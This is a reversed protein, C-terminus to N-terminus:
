QNHTVLQSQSISQPTIDYVKNGYQDFVMIECPKKCNFVNNYGRVTIDGKGTLSVSSFNGNIVISCDETDCYAFDGSGTMSVSESGNVAYVSNDKGYTYIISNDAFIINREGYIKCENSKVIIINNSGYVDCYPEPCAILLRKNIAYNHREITKTVYPECLKLYQTLSLKEGVFLETAASKTGNEDDFITGKAVVQAYVNLDCTQPHHLPNYYLWVDLPNRCFHMLGKRCIETAGQEKHWTNPTYKKGRCTLDPEFAKYGTMVALARPVINNNKM